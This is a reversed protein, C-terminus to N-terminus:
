INQESSVVLGRRVLDKEATPMRPTCNVEKPTTGQEKEEEYEFDQKKV